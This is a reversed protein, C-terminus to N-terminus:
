SEQITVSKTIRNHKVLGQHASTDGRLPKKQEAFVRGWFNPVHGKPIKDNQTRKLTGPPDM